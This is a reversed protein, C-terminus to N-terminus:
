NPPIAINVILAIYYVGLCWRQSISISWLLYLFEDVGIFSRM